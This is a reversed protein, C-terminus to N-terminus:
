GGLWRSEEGLWGGFGCSGDARARMLGVCGFWGGVRWSWCTLLLLFRGLEATKMCVSWPGGM